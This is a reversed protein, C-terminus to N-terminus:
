LAQEDDTKEAKWFVKSVIYIEVAVLTLWGLALASVVIRKKTKNTLAM